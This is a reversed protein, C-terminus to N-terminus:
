LKFVDLDIIGFIGNRFRSRELMHQVKFAEYRSLVKKMENGFQGISCDLRQKEFIGAYIHSNKKRSVFVQIDADEISQDKVLLGVGAIINDMADFEIDYQIWKYFNESDYIKKKNAPQNEIIPIKKLNMGMFGRSTALFVVGVKNSDSIQFVAKSIGELDVFGNPCDFAVIYNYEGSFTFGHLFKYELAANAPVDNMFDVVPNDVAPYFYVAGNVIMTEGFLNKYDAFADEVNGMAALGMGFQVDKPNVCVVDRDGYNAYPLKKTSGIISYAGANTQNSLYRYTVGDIEKESSKATVDGTISLKELEELAFIIEFIRDFGSMKLMERITDPVDFLYIDGGNKKINKQASLLVRLGASSIFGVDTFSAIIVREGSFILENFYKELEPGTVSDIRGKLYLWKLGRNEKVYCSFM